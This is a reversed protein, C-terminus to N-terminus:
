RSVLLYEFNFKQLNRLPIAGEQHLNYHLAEPVLPMHEPLRTEIKGRFKRLSGGGLHGSEVGDYHRAVAEYKTPNILLLRTSPSAKVHELARELFDTGEDEKFENLINQGVILVDEREALRSLEEEVSGQGILFKRNEILVTRRFLVSKKGYYKRYWWRWYRGYKDLICVRLADTHKPHKASQYQLLGLIEPACGGGFLVLQKVPCVKASQDRKEVDRLAHVILQTYPVFSRLLYAAQELPKSYDIRVDSRYYAARQKVAVPYVDDKLWQGVEADSKAWENKVTEYVSHWFKELHHKDRGAM